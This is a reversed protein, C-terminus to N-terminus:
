RTVAVLVDWSGLTVSDGAALPRGPADAPPPDAPADGRAAVLVDLDFPATVTAAGWSWNHLVHVRTGNPRSSTHVTVSAPVDAWAALPEPVLWAALSRALDVGPVTGVVTIRGAGHSRTTVASWAGLHPHVYRALVDAGDAVLCEAWATAEGTLVGTVPVPDSLNNFEDYWAGAAASLRAPQVEDRARAEPDAYGTRPGVVLHGGADAYRLLWDLDADSAPYFGAAVLVPHRCAVVDPAEDFLYRPRVVRAQLGADFAGRCTGDPLKACLPNNPGHVFQRTKTDWVITGFFFGSIYALGNSDIHISGAYTGMNPVTAEVQLTAPNIIALSSAASCCPGTNLVYLKGDPGVTEDQANVGGTSVSGLVKLTKPDIATVVSNGLPSYDGATNLNQSLVFIRSNAAVISGPTATVQVTDRISDSAQRTTVRGIYNGLYNAVFVTTDDYFTSGTTNGSAFLFTRKVSMADLDVLALSAADGLPVAALHARVSLGTPTILSSAGFAIHRQQTPNGLQFLTIASGTSNVVLGVQANSATGGLFGTARPATTSDSSCATLAFLAASFAALSRRLM